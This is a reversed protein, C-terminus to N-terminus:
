DLLQCYFSYTHTTAPGVLVLDQLNVANFAMLRTRLPNCYCQVFGHGVRCGLQADSPGQSSGLSQEPGGMVAENVTVTTLQLTM